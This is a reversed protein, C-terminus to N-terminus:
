IGRVRTCMWYLNHRYALKGLYSNCYRVIRDSPGTQSTKNSVPRSSACTVSIGNQAVCSTVFDFAAAPETVSRSCAKTQLRQVNGRGISFSREPPFLPLCTDFLMGPTWICPALGTTVCHVITCVLCKFAFYWLLRSETSYPHVGPLIIM